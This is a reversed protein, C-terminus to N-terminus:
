IINLLTPPIGYKELTKWLASRHVSDYAKKLDIFLIYLSTNHERTKEVLQRAVFIIDVCDCGKRFGCQSDLVTEEVVKQLCEQIIRACVKGVIDLLSIGRWNDCHHLDGKKPIPIVEANRWDSAVAQQQWVTSFIQLLRERLEGGSFAIMEPLIGTKGGAKGSKMSQLASELEESSPVKDLEFQIPHIPMQSLVDQKYISKLKSVCVCVCVHVHACVHHRAHLVQLLLQYM